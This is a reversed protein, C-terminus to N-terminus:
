NAQVAVTNVGRIPHVNYGLRALLRSAADRDEISLHKHEYIVLKPRFQQLDILKLIEFDYGETDIVVVDIKKVGQQRVLTPFSVTAIPEEVIYQEVDVFESANKVVVDRLFSGLENLHDPVDPSPRIRYFPLAGDRDALAANVLTVSGKNAYTKRLSTFIDPLPELLLGRWGCRYILPNIFDHRQGDNAGVQLVFVDKQSRAVDFLYDEEGKGGFGLGLYVRRTWGLVLPDWDILARLTSRLSM